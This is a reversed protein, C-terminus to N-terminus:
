ERCGHGEGRLQASDLTGERLRLLQSFEAEREKQSNRCYCAATRNLVTRRDTTSYWQFEGRVKGAALAVSKIMPYYDRRAERMYQPRAKVWRWPIYMFYLIRLSGDSTM